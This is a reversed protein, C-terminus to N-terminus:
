CKPMTCRPSQEHKGSAARGMTLMCSTRSGLATHARDCMNCLPLGRDSAPLTSAQLCAAQSDAAALRASSQDTNNLCAAAAHGM